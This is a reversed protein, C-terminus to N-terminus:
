RTGSLQGPPFDLGHEFDANVRAFPISDVFRGAEEKEVM